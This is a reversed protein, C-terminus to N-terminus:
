YNFLCVRSINANVAPNDSSEVVTGDQNIDYYYTSGNKSAFGVEGVDSTTINGDRNVDGAYLCYKGFVLKLPDSIFDIGYINQPLTFDVITAKSETTAFSHSKNTMVSIHNLHEVVVYYSKNAELNKFKIYPLGEENYVVGNQALLASTSDVWPGEAGDRIKIYIWDCWKVGEGIIKTFTEPDTQYKNVSIKLHDPYPSQYELDDETTPLIDEWFCLMDGTYLMPGELYVKIQAYYNDNIEIERMSVEPCDGIKKVYYVTDIGSAKSHYITDKYPAPRFQVEGLWPNKESGYLNYVEAFDGSLGVMLNTDVDLAISYKALVTTDPSTSYVANLTDYKAYTTANCLLTDLKVGGLVYDPTTVPLDYCHSTSAKTVYYTGEEKIELEKYYLMGVNPNNNTTALSRITDTYSVLSGTKGVFYYEVYVDLAENREDYAPGWVNLRVKSGTTTPCMKIETSGEEVANTAASLFVRISDRLLLEKSETTRFAEGAPLTPDTLVCQLKLHDTHGPAHRIVLTDGAGHVLYDFNFDTNTHQGVATDLDKFDGGNSVQWKYSLNDGTSRANVFFLVDSGECAWVQTDSEEDIFIGPEPYKDIGGVFTPIIPNNNLTLAGTATMDWEIKPDRNGPALKWQVRAIFLTDKLPIELEASTINTRATVKVRLRRSSSAWWTDANIVLRKSGTGADIHENIESLVVPSAQQFAETNFTFYFDADGLFFYNDNWNTNPRYLSIDFQLANADGTTVVKENHIIFHLSDTFATAAKAEFSFAILIIMCVQRFM